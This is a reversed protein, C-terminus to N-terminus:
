HACACTETGCSSCASDKAKKDGCKGCSKADKGADHKMGCACTEDKAMKQATNAPIASNGVVYGGGNSAACGAFMFALSGAMMFNKMNM